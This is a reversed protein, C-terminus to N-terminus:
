QFLGGRPKMALPRIPVLPYTIGTKSRCVAGAIGTVQSGTFISGFNVSIVGGSTPNTVNPNRRGGRILDNGTGGFVVDWSNGVTIVDDGGLAFDKTTLRDIVGATFTALGQDGAVVDADKFLYSADAGYVKSRIMARVVLCWTAATVTIIPTRMGYAVGTQVDITEVLTLSKAFNANLDPQDFAAYGHDGVAIDAAADFEPYSGTDIYDAGAGGFVIDSDNGAYIVDNAGLGLNTTYVELKGRRANLLQVDTIVVLNDAATGKTRDLM